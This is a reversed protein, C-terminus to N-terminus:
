GGRAGLKPPRLSDGGGLAFPHDSPLPQEIATVPPEAAQTVVIVGAAVIAAGGAIVPWTLSEGLVAAALLAAAVPEMYMLIGASAAPVHRIAAVFVVSLAGTLFLGLFLLYGLDAAAPLGGALAAPWLVAAAALSEWLVWTLPDVGAAYRKLLVLLFAFSVAALVALAVGLPRVEGSGEGGALTILAIGALSVGLAAISSRPVREAILLPALLVMFAPAAYTVLVASAVSTEKIAGFYAAWHVALLVGLPLVARTRIRFLDRRRLVVVSLAVGAATLVVRWFVIALPPLDIERVVLAILGWASACAALVLSAAVQRPM